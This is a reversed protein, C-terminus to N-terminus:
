PVLAGKSNDGYGFLKNNETLFLVHNSSGCAIKIVKENEFKEKPFTIKSENSFLFPLGNTTIMAIFNTFKTYIKKISIKKTFSLLHLNNDFEFGFKQLKLFTPKKTFQFNSSIFYVLGLIKNLIFIGDCFATIKFNTPLNSILYQENAQLFIFAFNNNNTIDINNIKNNDLPIIKIQPLTSSSGLQM